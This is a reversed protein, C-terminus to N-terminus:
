KEYNKLHNLIRMSIVFLISTMVGIVFGHMGWRWMIGMGIGFFIAHFVQFNTLISTKM